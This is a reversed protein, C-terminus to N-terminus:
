LGQQEYNRRSKLVAAMFNVKREKPRLRQPEMSNEDRPLYRLDNTYQTAYFPAAAVWTSHRQGKSGSGAPGLELARRCFSNMTVNMYEEKYREGDSAIIKRLGRVGNTQLVVWRM